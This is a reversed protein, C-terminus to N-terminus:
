AHHYQAEKPAPSKTVRMTAELGTLAHHNYHGQSLVSCLTARTVVSLCKRRHDGGHEWLCLVPCPLLAIQGRGVHPPLEKRLSSAVQSLAKMDWQFFALSGVNQRLWFSINFDQFDTQRSFSVLVGFSLDPWSFHKSKAGNYKVYTIITYCLSKCDLSIIKFVESCPNQCHLVNRYLVHWGEQRANDTVFRLKLPFFHMCRLLEKPFEKGAANSLM